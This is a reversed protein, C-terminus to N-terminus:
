SYMSVSALEGVFCINELLSSALSFKGNGLYVGTNKHRVVVCVCQQNALLTVYNLQFSPM